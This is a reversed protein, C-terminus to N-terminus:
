SAIKRPRDTGLVKKRLKVKLQHKRAYDELRRRSVDFAERIVLRLDKRMGEIDLQKVWEDEELDHSLAHLNSERTVAIEEGPVTLEIRLDFRNGWERHRHPIDVVVRCAMIDRCFRDLKAARRRIEREIWESPPMGHFAVTVPLKM